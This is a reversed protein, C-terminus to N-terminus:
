LIGSIYSLLRTMEYPSAQRFRIGEEWLFRRIGKRMQKPLLSAFSRRNTFSIIHGNYELYSTRIPKTFHGYDSPNRREQILEKKWHNYCKLSDTMIVQSYLAGKSNLSIKKFDLGGLTFADVLLPDLFIRNIGGRTRNYELVLRQDYIDYNLRLGSYEKGSLIVSGQMCEEGGLYTHNGLRYHRVYFQQGNLLEQDPGQKQDIYERLSPSPITEQGTHQAHLGQVLVIAAFCLLFRSM